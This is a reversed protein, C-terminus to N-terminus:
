EFGALLTNHLLLIQDHQEGPLSSISPINVLDILEKTYQSTHKNLYDLPADASSSLVRSFLCMTVLFVHAGSSAAAHMDYLTSFYSFKCRRNSRITVIFIPKNCHGLGTAAAGPSKNVAIKRKSRDELDNPRDYSDYTVLLRFPSYTNSCLELPGRSPGHVIVKHESHTGYLAKCHLCLDLLARDVSLCIHATILMHVQHDTHAWNGAQWEAPGHLRAASSDKEGSVCM